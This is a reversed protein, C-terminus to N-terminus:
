LLEHEVEAADSSPIPGCDDMPIVASLILRDTPAAPPLPRRRYSTVTRISQGPLEASQARTPRPTVSLARLPPPSCPVGPRRLLTMANITAQSSLRPRSLAPVGSRHVSWSRGAGGSRQCQRQGPGTSAGAGGSDPMSRTLSALM